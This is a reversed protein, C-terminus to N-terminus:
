MRVCIVLGNLFNHFLPFYKKKVNSMCFLQHRSMLAEMYGPVVLSSFIKTLRLADAFRSCLSWFFPKSNEYLFFFLSWLVFVYSLFPRLLASVFLFDVNLINLNDTHFYALICAYVITSM